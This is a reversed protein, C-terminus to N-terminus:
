GRQQRALFGRGRVEPVPGGDPRMRVGAYTPGACARIRRCYPVHNAPTFDFTHPEGFYRIPENGEKGGPKLDRDPLNPLSLLLTNYEAEVDKLQADSTKITEKMENVQAILASVDGGDKKLQPIQKSLKNQDAKCNESKQILERRQTDLALIRDIAEGCEVEKYRLRTKIEEPNERILKIDIM